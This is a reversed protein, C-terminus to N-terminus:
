GGLLREKKILARLAREADDWKQDYDLIDLPYCDFYNDLIRLYNAAAARLEVLQAKLDANERELAILDDRMKNVKTNISWIESYIHRPQNVHIVNPLMSM